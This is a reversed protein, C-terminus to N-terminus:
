SGLAGIIALVGRWNEDFETQDHASLEVDLAPIGQLSIWNAADGTIPYATFRDSGTPGSGDRVYGGAQAYVDALAKSKDFVSRGGCGGAFVGGAASHWMVVAHPKVATILDRLARTEPESFPQTGASVTRGSWQATPRWNCGWNRNLDVGNANLRGSATDDLVDGVAFRGDSGTVAFLGDPNASPVIYLAFGAPVDGPQTTLRDIMQYALMVTNWEYGGHIGGILLVPLAGGGFRYVVM